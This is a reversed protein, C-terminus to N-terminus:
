KDDDEDDEDDDDSDEDDSEEDANELWEILKAAQCFLLLVFSVCEVDTSFSFGYVCM